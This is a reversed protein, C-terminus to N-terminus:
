QAAPPTLFLRECLGIQQKHVTVNNRMRADAADGTPLPSNTSTGVMPTAFVATCYFKFWKGGFAAGSFCLPYPLQCQTHRLLARATIRQKDCKVPCRLGTSVARQRPYLATFLTDGALLRRAPRIGDSRADPTQENHCSEASEPLSGSIESELNM